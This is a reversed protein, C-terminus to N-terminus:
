QRVSEKATATADLVALMRRALVTRDYGLAAERGAAGLRAALAPDDAIRIIADAIASPDEPPVVLGAGAADVIAASEGPVGHVIPIGMSMAEFIKSPIVTRFLATDKLHVISADLLSFYRRIESRPVSDVFVVNTLGMQSAKERLGAKEAGDGILLLRVDERERLLGAAALLTKLSHAMGHTGVYGAVYKGSLGLDAALEADRSRPEFRVPDVGNTVVHVKGPDIGRDILNTRFAHTVTVVAASRRYLFLEVKELMRFLRGSHMAGVARISEPWLDRVEFVFPRRRLAGVLWGAVATFFQPSTAVVVDPKRVLIGAVTASAMFSAFDLSRRFFGENSTIYSWVRVVRIGDFEERSFIGNRYGEFVRGAPFNPACTVVTVDHGAEVWVRAHEHTRTAPANVEPPFNDTLFLIHM